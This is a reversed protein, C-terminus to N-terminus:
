IAFPSHVKVPQQVGAPADPVWALRTGTCYCREGAPIPHAALAASALHRIRGVPLCKWPMLFTWAVVPAAAVLFRSARAM